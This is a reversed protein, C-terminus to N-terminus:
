IFDQMFLSLEKSAPIDLKKRMRYRLVKVSDPSINKIRSIEKSSLNLRLLSALQIENKTLSPYTTRLRSTFEYNVLEVNKQFHELERDIILHSKTLAILDNLSQTNSNNRKLMNLKKYVIEIFEQKRSIEIGFDTLDKGKSKLEYELKKNNAKEVLLKEQVLANRMLKLQMEQNTFLENTLRLGFILTFLIPYIDLPLIGLTYPALFQIGVYQSIIEEIGLVAFIITLILFETAGRRNGKILVVSSYVVTIILGILGLHAILRWEAMINMKSTLLYVFVASAFILSLLWRVYLAKRGIFELIFWPFVGYYLGALIIVPIDYSDVTQSDLVLFSFYLGSFLSFLGFYLYFKQKPIMAAVYLGVLALAINIGSFFVLVIEKM